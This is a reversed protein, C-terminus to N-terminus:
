EGVRTLATEIVAPSLYWGTARLLQEIVPRAAPIAGRRKADLVLGLTGLVPIGLTRAARRGRRDDLLAIAGPHALAWTVVAAEGPDRRHEQLEAPAPGSEVVRIWAASDLAAVTADGPGRRVEQEVPRTMVIQEGALRLLDLRSGQALVIFPSADVVPAEAVM